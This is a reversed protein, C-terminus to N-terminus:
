RGVAVCNGAIAVAYAATDPSVLTLLDGASADWLRATGDDGATAVVPRGDVEGLAVGRVEGGHGKLTRLVKGSRADWLRATGDASATAVVPRGEVEGLAV